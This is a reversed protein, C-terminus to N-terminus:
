AMNQKKDIQFLAAFFQILITNRNIVDHSADEEVADQMIMMLTKIVPLENAADRLLDDTGKPDKQFRGVWQTFEDFDIDRLNM